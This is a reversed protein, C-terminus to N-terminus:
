TSSFYTIQFKMVIQYKVMNKKTTNSLTNNNSIHNKWILRLIVGICIVIGTLLFYKNLVVEGFTPNNVSDLEWM